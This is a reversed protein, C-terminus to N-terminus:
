DLLQTDELDYILYKEIQQWGVSGAGQQWCDLIEQYSLVLRTSQRLGLDLVATKLSRSQSLKKAVFDWRLLCIYIDVHQSNEIFVARIALPKGFVQATRIIRSEASVRFPHPINHLACRAIIFPLDFATGNFTYMVDFRNQQWYSIFQQLLQSESDDMFVFRGRESLCGIAFICDSQPNLGATEIDLVLKTLEHYPKIAAIPEWLPRATTDTTKATRGLRSAAAATTGM